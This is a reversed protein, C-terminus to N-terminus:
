WCIIKAATNPPAMLNKAVLAKLQDSSRVITMSNFGLKIPWAKEIKEELKAIDKSPSGFVVNGSSIIAKVNTFGLEELVGELKKQHMNPNSPGIGRLLAVYKMDLNYSRIHISLLVTFNYRIITDFKLLSSSAAM